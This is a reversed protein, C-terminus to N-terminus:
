RLRGHISAKNFAYMCQQSCKMDASIWVGLDKEEVEEILKMGGMYYSCSNKQKGVHM